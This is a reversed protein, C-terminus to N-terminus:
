GYILNSINYSTMKNQWFISVNWDAVNVALNLTGESCPVRAYGPLNKLDM